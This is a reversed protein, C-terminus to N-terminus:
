LTELGDVADDERRVAGEEAPEPHLVEAVVALTGVEDLARLRGVLAALRLPELGEQRVHLTAQRFSQAPRRARKARSLAPIPSARSRVCCTRAPSAAPRRM